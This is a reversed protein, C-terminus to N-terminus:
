LVNELVPFQSPDYTEKLFKASGFKMGQENEKQMDKRKRNSRLLGILKKKISSM